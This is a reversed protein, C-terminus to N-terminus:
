TRRIHLSCARPRRVSDVVRPYTQGARTLGSRQVRVEFKLEEEFDFLYLFRKKPILSLEELRKAGADHFQSKRGGYAFDEDWLENNFFFAYSHRNDLDFAHQIALHLQEVTHDAPLELVRKVGSAHWPTVEFSYTQM